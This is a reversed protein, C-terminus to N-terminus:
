VLRKSKRMFKRFWPNTNELLKIWKCYPTCHYRLTPNNLGGGCRKCKRTLRRSQKIKENLKVQTKRVRKKHCTDCVLKLINGSLINDCYRCKWKLELLITHGGYRSRCRGCFRRLSNTKVPEPVSNRCNINACKYVQVQVSV